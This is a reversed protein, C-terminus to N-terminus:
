QSDAKSALTSEFLGGGVPPTEKVGVPARRPQRAFRVLRERDMVLVAHAIQVRRFRKRQPTQFLSQFAGSADPPVADAM